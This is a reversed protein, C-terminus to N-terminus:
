LELFLSRKSLICPTQVTPQPSLSQRPVFKLFILSHRPKPKSFGYERNGQMPEMLSHKIREIKPPATAKTM